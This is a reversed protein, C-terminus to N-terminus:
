VGQVEQGRRLEAHARRYRVLATIPVGAALAALYLTVATTPAILQAFLAAAALGVMRDPKSLPGDYRREGGAARATIGVMAPLAVMGLVAAGLRLDAHGALVLGGLLLLDGLRDGIENLLEGTPSASDTLRALMGDLANLALRVAVIPVAVLLLRPEDGSFALAAGGVASVVVAARTLANASVSRRVVFQLAPRLAQQFRPKVAYLTM